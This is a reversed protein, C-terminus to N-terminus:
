NVSSMKKAFLSEKLVFFSFLFLLFCLITIHFAKDIRWTFQNKLRQFLRSVNLVTPSPISGCSFERSAGVNVHTVPIPM